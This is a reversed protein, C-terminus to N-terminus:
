GDHGSRSDGTTRESSESQDDTRAPLAVPLEMTASWDVDAHRVPAGNPPTGAARGPDGVATGQGPRRLRVPLAAEAADPRFTGAPQGVAIDAPRDPTTAAGPAAVPDLEPAEVLLSAPVLVIATTGGRVGATLEVTIGHRRALRGVVYLGVAGSLPGAAPTDRILENVADLEAPGRGAGDDSIVIAQGGDRVEGTIRVTTTPASGTLAAEVVEALLHILDPMARGAVAGSWNPAVLVRPYDSVEAVAGRVVDVLPVPRRWRRGPTGGSLSILQEVNRRIRTALHDLRFLEALEDTDTERREMADLLGIQRHLLNQNDRTLRVFVERARQHAALRAAIQAARETVRETEAQRRGTQAVLQERQTALRKRQASLQAAQATLQAARDRQTALEAALEDRSTSLAAHETGLQDLRGVIRRTARITLIATAVVVVLGLGGVLGARVTVGAAGPTARDVSDRVGITVLTRLESLAPEAAAQWRAPQVPSTEGRRGAALLEMEAAHLAGFVRGTVLRDYDVREAAPLGAAAEARAFRAVAVLDVLRAYEADTLRASALAGAVLADERSLLEAARALAVLARTEEILKTRQSAWQSGYVAFGADIIRGYSAAATARDVRGGDVGDRLPRLADLRRVLEGARKQVTGVTVLRLDTEGAFRRLSEIAADTHTRQDLLAARHRGPTALEVMSLRREAQLGLILADTPQGLRTGLTRVALLDMADRATLFAAYGWLVTLVLLLAAAKEVIRTPTAGTAPAAPDPDGGAPGTSAVLDDDTAPRSAPRPPGDPSVTAPQDARGADRPTRRTSTASGGVVPRLNSWLAAVRRQAARM